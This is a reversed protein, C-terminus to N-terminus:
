RGMRRKVWECRHPKAKANQMKANLLMASHRKVAEREHNIVANNIM